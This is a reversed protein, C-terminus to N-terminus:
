ESSFFNMLRPPEVIDVLDRIILKLATCCFSNQCDWRNGTVDLILLQAFNEEIVVGNDAISHMNKANRNLFEHGRKAQDNLLNRLQRMVNTPSDFVIGHWGVCRAQLVNELKDDIFITSKPDAGTKEIVHAYFRFHPKREGVGGSTFVEDFISWDFPKARLADFDPLSINSMAFVRLMGNSEAKLTRIVSVLESNSQLSDRCQALANGFEKPDM